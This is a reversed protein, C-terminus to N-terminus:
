KKNKKLALVIAVLIALGLIGLAIFAITETVHLSKPDFTFEIVHKGAPVNMARLIYDARGHSVEKGDIFSRWGPYSIEALVGTGGEPANVEYTLTNPEYSTLVFTSPSDACACAKM